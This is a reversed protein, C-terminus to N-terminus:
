EIDSQDRVLFTLIELKFVENYKLGHRYRFPRERDSHHHQHPVLHGAEFVFCQHLSAALWCFSFAFILVYHEM